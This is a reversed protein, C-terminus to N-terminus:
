TDVVLSESKARTFEKAIGFEAFAGVPGTRGFARLYTPVWRSGCDDAERNSLAM